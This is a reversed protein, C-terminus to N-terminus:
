SFTQRVDADSTSSHRDRMEQPDPDIEVVDFTEVLVALPILVVSAIAKATDSADFIFGLVIVNVIVGMGWWTLLIMGIRKGWGALNTPREVRKWRLNDDAQVEDEDVDPSFVLTLSAAFIIAFTAALAWTPADLWLWLVGGVIPVCFIGTILLAVSIRALWDEADEPKEFQM